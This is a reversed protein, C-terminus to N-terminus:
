HGSRGRGGARDVARSLHRGLHRIRGFGRRDGDRDGGSVDGSGDLPGIRAAAAQMWGLRRTYSDTMDRAPVVPDPWLWRLASLDRCWDTTGAPGPVRDPWVEALEPSYKREGSQAQERSRAFRGPLYDARSGTHPVREAFRLCGRRVHSGGTFLLAYLSRGVDVREEISTFDRVRNGYLRLRGQLGSIAPFVVMVLHFLSQASFAPHRFIGVYAGTQVVEQEVLSQENVIQACALMARERTEWFSAWAAQMFVSVGLGVLLDGRWRGERRSIEYVCLQPYADHFILFNCRELFAFFHERDAEDLVPRVADSCLDTMNWGGNRSVMHALFAWHLEPYKTFVTWYAATRTLNNRNHLDTAQRLATVEAALEQSGGQKDCPTGSPQTALRSADDLLAALKDRCLGLFRRRARSDLGHGFRSRERVVLWMTVVAALARRLVVLTTNMGGVVSGNGVLWPTSDGMSAINILHPRTSVATCRVQADTTLFITSQFYVSEVPPIPGQCLWGQVDFVMGRGSCGFPDQGDDVSEAFVRAAITIDGIPEVCTARVDQDSVQGAVALGGAYPAVDIIEGLIYVGGAGQLRASNAAPAGCQRVEDESVRETTQDRREGSGSQLVTWLNAPQKQRRRAEAGGDLRRGPAQREAAHQHAEFRGQLLGVVDVRARHRPARLDGGQVTLIWIDQPRHREAPVKGKDVRHRLGHTCRRRNVQGDAYPLCAGVLDDGRGVRSLPRLRTGTDVLGILFEVPEVM